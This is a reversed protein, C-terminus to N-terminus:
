KGAARAYKSMGAAVHEQLVERPAFETETFQRFSIERQPIGMDKASRRIETAHLSRQEIRGVPKKQNQRRRDRHIPRHRQVNEGNAREHEKPYFLPTEGSCRTKKGARQDHEAAAKKLGNKCSM